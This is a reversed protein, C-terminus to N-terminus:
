GPSVTCIALKVDPDLVVSAFPCYLKWSSAPLVVRVGCARSRVLSFAHRAAIVAASAEVIAFNVTRRSGRVFLWFTDPSTEFLPVTLAKSAARTECLATATEHM